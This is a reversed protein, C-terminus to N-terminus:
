KDTSDLYQLNDDDLLTSIEKILDFLSILRDHIERRESMSTRHNAEITRTLQELRNQSETITM